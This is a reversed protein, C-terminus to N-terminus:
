RPPHLSKVSTVIVAPLEGRELLEGRVDVRHAIFPVLPDPGAESRRDVISVYLKKTREDLIGLDQGARASAIACQRHAEGRRNGIIFCATEVVEGSLRIQPRPKATPQPPAVDAPATEAPACAAPSAWAFGAAVAMAFWLTAVACRATRRPRRDEHLM